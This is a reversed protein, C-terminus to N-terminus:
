KGINALPQPKEVAAKPMLQQYKFLDERVQKREDKDTYQMYVAFGVLIVIAIRVIDRATGKIPKGWPTPIEMVREASGAKVEYLLQESIRLQLITADAIKAHTQCTGDDKKSEQLATIADTIEKQELSEPKETM